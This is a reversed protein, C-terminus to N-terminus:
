HLDLERCVLCYNRPDGWVLGKARFRLVAAIRLSFGAEVIRPLGAKLLWLRTERM